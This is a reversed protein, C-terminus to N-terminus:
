QRIVSQPNGVSQPDRPIFVTGASTRFSGFFATGADSVGGGIVLEEPDLTNLIGAFAQALYDVTEQITQKAALNGLEALAFIEKTNEVREFESLQNMTQIM